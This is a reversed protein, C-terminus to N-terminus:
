RDALNRVLRGHGFAGERRSGGPRDADRRRRMLHKVTRIGPGTADVLEAEFAFQEAHEALGALLQLLEAPYVRHRAWRLVREIDGLKQVPADLLQDELRLSM